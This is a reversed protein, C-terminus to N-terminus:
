PYNHEEFYYEETKFHYDAYNILEGVIKEIVSQAQGEIMALFLSNLLDILKKHQEDIRKINVSMEDSWTFLEM